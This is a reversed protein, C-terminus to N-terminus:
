MRLRQMGTVSPEFLLIFCVKREERKSLLYLKQTDESFISELVAM